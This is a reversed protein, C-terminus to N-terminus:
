RCYLEWCIMWLVLQFYSKEHKLKNRMEGPWPLNEGSGLDPGSSTVFTKSNWWNQKTYGIPEIKEPAPDLCNKCFSVWLHSHKANKGWTVHPHELTKRTTTPLQNEHSLNNNLFPPIPSSTKTYGTTREMQKPPPGFMKPFFLWIYKTMGIWNNCKKRLAITWVTVFFACM